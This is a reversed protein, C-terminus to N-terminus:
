VGWSVLCEEVREMQRERADLRRDQKEIYARFLARMQNRDLGDARMAEITERAHRLDNPHSAFPANMFAFGGGLRYKKEIDSVAEM